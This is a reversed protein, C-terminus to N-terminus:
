VVPYEKLILKGFGGGGRGRGFGHSQGGGGGGGGFGSSQLCFLCEIFQCLKSVEASGFSVPEEEWESM